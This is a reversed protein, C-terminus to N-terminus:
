VEQSEGDALRVMRVIAFYTLWLPAPDDRPILLWRELKPDDHLKLGEPSPKEAPLLLELVEEIAKPALPHLEYEKAKEATSNHHRAIATLVAKTLERNGKLMRFVLGKVAWAGEGAHSPRRVKRNAEEMAAKHKPNEPEWHTHVVLPVHGQTGDDPIPEGIAEHYLRAWEQWRRDLKGVDHLAIGLKVAGELTGPPLGLRAELRPLGYELEWALKQRLVDLMKKVHDAYFELEYPYGLSERRKREPPPPTRYEGGEPTFRFGVEADYAALAPHVVYLVTGGLAEESAVDVWQYRIPGRSDEQGIDEAEVPYRVVWPLGKEEAWERLQKFKGRFSGHFLSFGECAFPNVLQEPQDHVLVTWSDMRRILEKRTSPDAFAQAREILERFHGWSAEIEDLMKEDDQGHVEDLVKQEGNFDLPADGWDRLAEWTRQSQEKQGKQHYPAFNREGDDKVPPWYLYVEGVEGPFRACRGARQFVSSAPAVETHMVDSTINLGVEVVQTAVLILPTALTRTALQRTYSDAPGFERRLFAEKVARHIRTFRSHLLMVAPKRPHSSRALLHDLRELFEVILGEEQGKGRVERWESYLEQLEPHDWPIPVCGKAKLGQYIEQAREVTNCIVLTRNGLNDLVAEPTLEDDVAYYRRVKRPHRGGQTEIFEVEDLPVTVMEARLWKALRELRPKSFTATMLIFPSVDRLMKLMMLTTPLMTEPPFLHVEDFVLYAGVLAGANLNAKRRSLSYPVGLFSSLTQDITAFILNGRFERDTPREGTQIRVDMDKLFGFNEVRQRYEEQFQTALVRLPVSYICKRPFDADKEWAWLFPLLAAATKGSGTPAQLIVSQGKTVLEFVKKQFPYLKRRSM